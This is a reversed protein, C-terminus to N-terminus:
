DNGSLSSLDGKIIANTLNEVEADVDNILGEVEATLDELAGSIQVFASGAQEAM